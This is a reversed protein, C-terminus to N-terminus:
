DYDIRLGCQKAWGVFVVAWEPDGLNWQCLLRLKAQPSLGYITSDKSTDDVELGMTGRLDGMLDARTPLQQTM